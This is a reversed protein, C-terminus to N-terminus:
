APNVKNFSDSMNNLLFKKSELVSRRRKETKRRRIVEVGKLIDQRESKGIEIWRKTDGHYWPQNIYLIKIGYSMAYFMLFVSPAALIFLFYFLFDRGFISYGYSLLAIFLAACGFINLRMPLLLIVISANVFEKLNKKEILNVTVINTTAILLCALEFIACSVIGYLYLCIGYDKDYWGMTITDNSQGYLPVALTVILASLLALNSNVTVIDETLDTVDLNHKWSEAIYENSMLSLFGNWLTFKKSKLYDIEELLNCHAEKYRKWLENYDHKFNICYIDYLTDDDNIKVVDDCLDLIREKANNPIYEYMDFFFQIKDDANSSIDNNNLKKITDNLINLKINIKEKAINDETTTLLNEYDDKQTNAIFQYGIIGKRSAILYFDLKIDKWENKYNNDNDDIDNSDDTISNRIKSM